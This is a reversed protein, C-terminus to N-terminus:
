TLALLWLYISEPLTKKHIRSFTTQGTEWFSKTETPVPAADGKEMAMVKQIETHHTRSPSPSWDRDKKKTTRASITSSLARIEMLVNATRPGVHVIEEKLVKNKGKGKAKKERNIKPQREYVSTLPWREEESKVHSDTIQVMLKWGTCIYGKEGFTTQQTCVQMLSMSSADKVFEGVYQWSTKWFCCIISQGVEHRFSARQWKEFNSKPLDRFDLIAESDGCIRFFDHIMRAIEARSLDRRRNHRKKPQRSRSRSLEWDSNEQTRERDQFWSEQLWTYIRSSVLCSMGNLATLGSAVLLIVVYAHIVFVFVFEGCFRDVVLRWKWNVGRQWVNDKRLEGAAWAKLCLLGESGRFGLEECAGGLRNLCHCTRLHYQCVKGKWWWSKRQPKM